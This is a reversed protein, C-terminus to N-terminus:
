ALFRNGLARLFGSGRYSARCGVVLDAGSELEHVLAPIAAPDHQGDADLLVVFDGRARALGSKVAAGNGRTQAHGIVIAGARLARARTDDSSGDDVVILELNLPLNLISRCVQEITASEDLAPCVISILPGTTGAPIPM